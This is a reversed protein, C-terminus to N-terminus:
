KMKGAPGAPVNMFFQPGPHAGAAAAAGTKGAHKQQFQLLQQHNHQHQLQRPPPANQQRMKAFNLDPM